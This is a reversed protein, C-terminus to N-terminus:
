QTNDEVILSKTQTFRVYEECPVEESDRYVINLTLVREPQAGASRARAARGRQAGASRARAVQSRLSLLVVQANPPNQIQGAIAFHHKRQKRHVHTLSAPASAAGRTNM